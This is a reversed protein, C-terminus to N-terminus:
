VIDKLFKGSDIFFWDGRKKDYDLCRKDIAKIESDHVEWEIISLKWWYMPFCAKYAQQLPAWEFDRVTISKFIECLIGLLHQVM